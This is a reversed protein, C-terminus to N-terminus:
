KESEGPSKGGVGKGALCEGMLRLARQLVRWATPVSCGLIEALDALKMKGDMELWLTLALRERPPLTQLCERVAQKEAERLVVEEPTPAEDPLREEFPEGAGAEEGAKLDDFSIVPLKKRSRFDNLLNVAIRFLWTKFSASQQPDYRGQGTKKTRVIRYFVVEALDEADEKSVGGQKSLFAVLRPYYRDHLVELAEDQCRYYRAILEEDSLTQLARSNLEQQM